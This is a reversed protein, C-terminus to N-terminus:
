LGAESFFAESLPHKKIGPHSEDARYPSESRIRPADTSTM